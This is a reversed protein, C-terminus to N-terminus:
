AHMIINCIVFTDATLKKCLRCVNDYVQLNVTFRWHCLYMTKLVVLLGYYQPFKLNLKCFWVTYKTFKTGPKDVNTFVQM